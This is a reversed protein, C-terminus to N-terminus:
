RERHRRPLVGPAGGRTGGHPRRRGRAGRRLPVPPRPRPRGAGAPGRARPGRRRADLHRRQGALACTTPTGACTTSCSRTAPSDRRVRLAGRAGGRRPVDDHGLAGPGPPVRRAGGAGRHAAGRAAHHGPPARHVCRHRARAALRRRRRHHGGRRDRRPPHDHAGGGGREGPRQVGCRPDSDRRRGADIANGGNDLTEFAALAALEHGASVVHHHGRTVPVVSMATEARIPAQVARCPSTYADVTRAPPAYREFEDSFADIGGSLTELGVTPSEFASHRRNIVVNREM